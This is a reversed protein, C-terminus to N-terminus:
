KCRILGMQCLQTRCPVERELWASPQLVSMFPSFFFFLVVVRVFYNDSGLLPSDVWGDSHPLFVSGSHAEADPWFCVLTLMLCLKFFTTNKHKHIWIETRVGATRLTKMSEDLGLLCISPIIIIIITMMVMFMLSQARQDTGDGSNCSSAGVSRRDELQEGDKHVTTTHNWLSETKHCEKRIHFSTGDTNM